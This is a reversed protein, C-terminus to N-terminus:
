GERPWLPNVVVHETSPFSADLICELGSSMGAADHRIYSSEFRQMGPNIFYAFLMVCGFDSDQVSERLTERLSRVEPWGMHFFLNTIDVFLAVSPRVYSGAAKKTICAAIKYSLDTGPKAKALRASTCEIGAAAEDITFDPAETKSFSIGRRTLSAAINLEFRIGYYGISSSSRKLERKYHQLLDPRSAEIEKLSKVLMALRLLEFDRLDYRGENHHELMGALDRGIPTDMCAHGPVYRTGLMRNIELVQSGLRMLFELPDGSAGLEQGHLGDPPENM